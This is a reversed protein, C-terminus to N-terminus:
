PRFFAPLAPLHYPLLSPLEKLCIAENEHSVLADKEVVQQNTPSSGFYSPCLIFKNDLSPFGYKFKAPEKKNAARKYEGCSEETKGSSPSSTYKRKAEVITM